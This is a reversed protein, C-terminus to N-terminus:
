PLVCLHSYHHQATYHADIGNPWHEPLTICDSRCTGITRRAYHSRWFWLLPIRSVFRGGHYSPLALPMKSIRRLRYGPSGLLSKRFKGSGWYRGIELASQLPQRIGLVSCRGCRSRTFDVGAPIVGVRGCQAPRRQAGRCVAQRHLGGYALASRPRAPRIDCHM